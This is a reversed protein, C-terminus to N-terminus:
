VPPRAGGYGTLEAFGRGMPAGSRDTVSVAGEWYNLQPVNTSVNEQQVSMPLVDVDLNASQIHLRWGMPYTIGTSESTWSGSPQLSWESESLYTPNGATDIVTAHGYDQTGSSDRLIYIMIDRGDELQLGFWDWGIQTASLSGSSFERDMWGTGRVRETTNGVVIFGDVTLRPFTYYMSAATGESNKKSFGNPGQFVLPKQPRMRLSMGLGVNEDRMTANFANGDAELRWEGSSGPAAKAWAITSEPYSGVGSLLPAGRYLIEAFTHTGDRLDTIAAHGMIVARAGWRSSTQVANPTVGIRFFTFQYAFTRQTDTESELFGTVYWWETRFNQHAWHDQPFSWSYDSSPQEWVDQPYAVLCLVFPLAVKFTKM